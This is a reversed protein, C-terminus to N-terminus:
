YKDEDTYEEEREGVPIMSKKEALRALAELFEVFSMMIFRDSNM